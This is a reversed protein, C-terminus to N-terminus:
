PALFVVADIDSDSRANGMAVSGIVVIGQVSTEQIVETQIYKELEVRKQETESNMM